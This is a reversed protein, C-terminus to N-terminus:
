IKEISNPYKLRGKEKILDILEMDKIMSDFPNFESQICGNSIETAVVDFQNRYSFKFSVEKEENESKLKYSCCRYFYPLTIQGKEFFLNCEASLVQLLSSKINCIAGDCKLTIQEELDIGNPAKQMKVNLLEINNSISNFFSVAYIGSELLAGGGSDADMLRTRKHLMSADFGFEVEATLLNGLDSDIIMNKIENYIQGYRYSMVSSFYLKKKSALAIVKKLQLSNITVPKECLVPKGACLCKKIYQYHTSQPTAIYVCDVNDKNIAEDFSDCFSANYKDAFIKATEKNRSYVSCINHQLNQNDNKTITRAVKKAIHGSGIFVWNFEKM